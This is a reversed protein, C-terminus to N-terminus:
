NVSVRYLQANDFWILDREGKQGKATLQVSLSKAKGPAQVLTEIKAWAENPSSSPAITSSQIEKGAEDLWVLRLEAQGAGIQRVGTRVKYFTRPGVEVTQIWAGDQTAKLALSGADRYGTMARELTGTSNKAEWSVVVPEAPADPKKKEPPLINGDSLLNRLPIERIRAKQEGIAFERAANALQRQAPDKADKLAAAAGPIFDDWYYPDTRKNITEWFRNREDFVWVYEDVADLASMTAQRLRDVLPGELPPDTYVDSHVDKGHILFADMYIALGAQVQARYKARNEQAITSIVSNRAENVRRLYAIETSHPYSHEMGDVLTMQPPIADLWGNIFAPYLNYNNRPGEIGERPDGGFKGMVAGSNMFLTFFVMDPYESAMAHMVERGRQRVKAAYEDFSKEPHTRSAYKILTSSYAEPDFILGKLGAQKAAWALIRFHEVINKWGEDDFADAFEAPPVALSCTIFSEAKKDSKVNKLIDISPQFWEAKWPINKGAAFAAVTKGEDDKAYFKIATGDFPSAEIEKIHERFEDVSPAGWGRNILKKKIPGAGSDGTMGQEQAFLPAVSALGCSLLLAM